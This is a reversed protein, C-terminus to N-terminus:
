YKLLYVMGLVILHLLVMACGMVFLIISNAGHYTKYNVHELSM